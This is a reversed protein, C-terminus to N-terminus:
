LLSWAKLNVMAPAYSLVGRLACYFMLGLIISVLLFYRKEQKLQVLLAGLVFTVPFLLIDALRSAINVSFHFVLLVSISLCGSAVALQHLRHWLEDKAKFLYAVLFTLAGVFLYYYAFLGTKNQGVQDIYVVFRSNFAKGVMLLLEPLNPLFSLGVVLTLCVYFVKRGFFDFLILLLFVLLFILISIHFTAAFILVLFAWVRQNRIFLIMSWFGISLAMAARMQIPEHLFGLILLYPLVDWLTLQRKISLLGLFKILLSIAIFGAIFVKFNLLKAFFNQIFSYGPDRLTVTFLDQFTAFQKAQEFPPRYGDVEFTLSLYISAITVLLFVPFYKLLSLCYSM